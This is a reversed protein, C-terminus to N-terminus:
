SVYVWPFPYVSHTWPTRLHLLGVLVNGKINSDYWSPEFGSSYAAMLIFKSPQM